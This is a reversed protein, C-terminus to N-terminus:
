NSKSLVFSGTEHGDIAFRFFDGKAVAAFNGHYLDSYHKDVKELTEKLQLLAAVEHKCTYGCPCTCLLNRIEGNVFTFEVEYARNGVVIARGHGDKVCLCCVRNEMYYDRGREWVTPSVPMDGLKDLLFATGDSGVEYEDEEKIPPLYWTRVKEYPLAGPDFSVFHSGAMYLQGSVTTDAVSIVKRYDATKIKFNKNVERVIGRIGELKGEVFVFNGPKLDFQNNFYTLTQDCEPFYVQVLSKVPVVAQPALAGPEMKPPEEHLAFGIPFKM